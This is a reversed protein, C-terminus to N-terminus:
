EEKPELYGLSALVQELKDENAWAGQGSTDIGNVDQLKEYVDSSWSDPLKAIFDRGLPPSQQTITELAEELELESLAAEDAVPYAELDDLWQKIVRAIRTLRYGPHNKLPYHYALDTSKPADRGHKEIVKFALHDVHGVAWHSCGIIEWGNLTPDSELHKILADANSRTINDSDRTRFVPGMSWTTFWKPDDSFMAFSDPRTLAQDVWKDVDEFSPHPDLRVTVAEKVAM